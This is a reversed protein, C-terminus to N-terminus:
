MIFPFLNCQSFTSPNEKKPILVIFTANIVGPIFGKTRYEETAAMINLGMLDRFQIFLEMGCGNPGPGKYKVISSLIDEIEEKSILRGLLQNDVNSFM